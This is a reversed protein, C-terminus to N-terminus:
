SVNYTDYEDDNYDEIYEDADDVYIPDDIADSFLQLNNNLFYKM